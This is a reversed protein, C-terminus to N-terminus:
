SGTARGSHGRELNCIRCQPQLLGLSRIQLRIEDDVVADDRGACASSIGLLGLLIRVYKRFSALSLM